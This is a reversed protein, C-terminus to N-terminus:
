ATCVLPQQWSNTSSASRCVGAELPDEPASGGLTGLLRTPHSTLCRECLAPCLSESTIALGIPRVSRQGRPDNRGSICLLRPLGRGVGEACRQCRPGEEEGAADTRQELLVVLQAFRWGTPPAADALQLSLTRAKRHRRLPSRPNV